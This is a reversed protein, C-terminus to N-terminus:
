FPLLNSTQISRKGRMAAFPRSRKYAGVDNLNAFSILPSDDMAGYGNRNMMNRILAGQRNNVPSSLDMKKGRMGTFAAKKRYGDFATYFSDSRPHFFLDDKRGRLPIFRRKGPLDVVYDDAFNKENEDASTALYSNGKTGYLDYLNNNNSNRLLTAVSSASSPSSPTLPSSSSSLSSSSPSSVLPILSRQNDLFYSLGDIREKGDKSERSNLQHDFSPEVSDSAWVLPWIGLLLIFISCRVFAM